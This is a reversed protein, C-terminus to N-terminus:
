NQKFTLLLPAQRRGSKKKKQKKTRKPPYFSRVNYLKSVKHISRSQTIYLFFQDKDSKPAAGEWKSGPMLSFSPFCKVHSKDAAMIAIAQSEGGVTKKHCGKERHIKTTVNRADEGGCM